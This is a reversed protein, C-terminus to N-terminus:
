QPAEQGGADAAAPTWIEPTPRSVAQVWEHAEADVPAATRVAQDALWSRHLASM